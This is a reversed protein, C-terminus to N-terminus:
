TDPAMKWKMTGIKSPIKRLFGLGYKTRKREWSKRTTNVDIKKCRQLKLLYAIVKLRINEM